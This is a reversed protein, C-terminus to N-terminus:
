DAVMLGSLSAAESLPLGAEVMTRFARASSAIDGAKLEGWELQVDTEFKETLEFSVLRGLPGLVSHLAQRYSERKSTGQADFWLATSLGCAAAVEEFALKAAEISAAPVSAGVRKSDWGSTPNNTPGSGFQDAMSEVFALGGNLGKIDAKLADIAPDDGDVNPLPLLQGRPGSLEDALAASVEASLRGALRASQLPGVGRWPTGPDSSYRVHVVGAAPLNEITTQHSPGALSLRYVWSAPNAGGQVDWSGAPDLRLAGRQRDMRIVAVYEGNRILSRGIMSLTHPDLVGEMTSDAMTVDASAFARAVFGSTAELAATAGPLASAGSSQAQLLSIITDSYAGGEQRKESGTLRQWIGM